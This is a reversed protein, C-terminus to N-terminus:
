QILAEIGKRELINLLKRSPGSPHKEGIEWKKVTSPSTNLLSAFVSQSLKYRDRLARVQSADYSPVAELCLAEYKHMRKKDIFGASYLDNATEHIAQLLDNEVQSSKGM